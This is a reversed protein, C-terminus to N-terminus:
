KLIKNCHLTDGLNYRKWDYDVVYIRDTIKGEKRFRFWNGLLTRNKEVIQNGEFVCVDQEMDCSSLILLISYTIINKM